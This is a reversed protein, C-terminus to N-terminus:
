LFEYGMISMLQEIKPRAAEDDLQSPEREHRGEEHRVPGVQFSGTDESEVHRRAESQGTGQPQGLM